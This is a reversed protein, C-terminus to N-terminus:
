EWALEPRQAKPNEKQITVFKQEPLNMKDDPYITMNKYKEAAKYDKRLPFGEWDDPCLIRRFDPHGTFVVGLMDFCEREQWNAADWLDTVSKLEPKEREVKVKLTFQLNNQPDFNALMYCVDIRDEYDVGSIVQLVKLGHNEKLDKCVEYLSSADIYIFDDGNKDDVVVAKANAHAANIKEALEKHM